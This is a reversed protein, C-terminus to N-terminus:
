KIIVKRTRGKQKLIYLGKGSRGSGKMGALNYVEQGNANGGDKISNIKTTWAEPKFNIVASQQASYGDGEENANYPYLVSLRFWGDYNGDWGWNIHFLGEKYGDCVFAHGGTSNRGDYLVPTGAAIQQYILEEWAENDYDARHVQRMDSSFGFYYPIGDCVPTTDAGSGDPSYDMMFACGCYLMLKAVANGSDEPSFSDYDVLMKEWDFETAPLQKMQLKHTKTRYSYIAKSSAPQRYYYLIQAIATAVCGTVCRSGDVEPCLRNYPDYQGWRTSVLPAVTPREPTVVEATNPLRELAESYYTMWASMSEPVKGAEYRGSEVIGLIPFARDDSPAIIFGGSSINFVYLGSRSDALSLQRLNASRVRRAEGKNLSTLARQAAQEATLHAANSALALCCSLITIITRKM